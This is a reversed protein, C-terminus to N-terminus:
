SSQIDQWPDVEWPEIGKRCLINTWVMYTYTCWAHESSGPDLHIYSCWFPVIKATLFWWSFHRFRWSFLGQRGAALCLGGPISPWPFDLLTRWPYLALSLRNAQHSAALSLKSPPEAALRILNITFNANHWFFIAVASSIM